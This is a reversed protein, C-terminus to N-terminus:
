WSVLFLSTYIQPRFTFGYKDPHNLIEKLAVIRFMYRGTEEGLLLDYYDDVIQM